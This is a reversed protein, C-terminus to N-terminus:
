STIIYSSGRKELHIFKPEVMHGSTCLLNDSSAMDLAYKRSNLASEPDVDFLTTINPDKLQLNPVHLIDGMHFMSQNGDDVRFGAHGPTHGPLPVTSVGSIIDKNSTLVELQADYTSVVNKALSSWDRGNIEDSGFEKATWFSYEEELIKFNANKFVASGDEDICGGIHDPHLHTIFIDTINDPALGLEDLADLIFGCTPGFLSGCGTDVLLNQKGNQIVCANFNTFTFSQNEDSNIKQIDEDSLNKLAEPPLTREGDRLTTVNVTGVATTSIRSM